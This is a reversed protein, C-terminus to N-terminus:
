MILFRCGWNVVVMVKSETVRACVCVDFGYSGDWGVCLKRVNIGICVCM